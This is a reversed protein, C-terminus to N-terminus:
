VSKKRSMGEVNRVSNEDSTKGTGLTVSLGSQFRGFDESDHRNLGAWALKPRSLGVLLCWGPLKTLAEGQFCTIFHSNVM